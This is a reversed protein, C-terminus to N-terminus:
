SAAEREIKLVSLPTGAMMMGIMEPDAKGKPLEGMVQGNFMVLIRNSLALLEDLDASVLLIAVGKTRENVLAQHINVAAEIDLVRTPKNAIILPPSSSLERALILKQQNGGSLTGAIVHTGVARVNYSQILNETFREIAPLDLLGHNSLPRRDFHKLVANRSLNFSLILGENQRDDTIYAVNHNIYDHPSWATAEENCFWIQGSDVHRLGTIAEVLERQGNGDVGAIGLIEGSCVDLDISRVAPLGRDDSVHLGRISLVKRMEPVAIDQDVVEGSQNGMGGVGALAMVFVSENTKLKAIEHGIMERALQKKNTESTMSSFVVRGARLVTVRDTVKLVEDLKHSIFVISKGQSAMGRLVVALDDAEQPTLVATPEDLILINAGRYLSNLIEVRQQEGVSLDQIRAYPDIKLGYQKAVEAVKSAATKINLFFDRESLGLIINETVTFPRVLRFHQHVMGIGLAIADGPSKMIVPQGNVLIEGEDPRYLGFLINMLTTKGAGNEGLLGHVESAHLDLDIHDNALVSPFHKTIGVMRVPVNAIM